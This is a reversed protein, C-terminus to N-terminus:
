GPPPTKRGAPSGRPHGAPPTRSAAKITPEVAGLVEGPELDFSERVQLGGCLDSFADGYAFGRARALLMRDPYTTWASGDKVLHARKADLMSFERSVATPLGRRKVTVRAKRNDGEGEIIEERADELQGSALAKAKVANPTMRVRGGVVYLMDFSGLPSFGLESGRQMVAWAAAVTKIDRPLLGSEVAWKAVRLQEDLNKPAVGGDVVEVAQQEVRALAATVTNPPAPPVETEPM